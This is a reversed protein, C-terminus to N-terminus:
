TQCNSNVDKRAKNGALCLTVEGGPYLFLPKLLATCAWREEKRGGGLMEESANEHKCVMEKLYLNEKTVVGQSKAHWHESGGRGRPLCVTWLSPPVPCSGAAHTNILLLFSRAAPKPPLWLILSPHPALTIFLISM